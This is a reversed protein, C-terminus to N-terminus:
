GRHLLKPIFYEISFSPIFGRVTKLIRTKLFAYKYKKITNQTKYLHPKLTFQFSVFINLQVENTKQLLLKSCPGM